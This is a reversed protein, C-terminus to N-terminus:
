INSLSCLGERGPFVESESTVIDVTTARHVFTKEAPFYAPSLPLTKEAPFYKPSLPILTM